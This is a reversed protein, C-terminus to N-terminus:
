ENVTSTLPSLVGSVLSVNKTLTVFTVPALTVSPWPWPVITLSSVDASRDIVLVSPTVVAVGPPM